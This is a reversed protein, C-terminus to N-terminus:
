RVSCVVGLLLQISKVKELRIFKIHFGYTNYKECWCVRNLLIEKFSVYTIWVKTIREERYYIQEWMEVHSLHKRLYLLFHWIISPFGLLYCHLTLRFKSYIRFCLCPRLLMKMFVKKLKISIYEKSMQIIKILWSYKSKWYFM